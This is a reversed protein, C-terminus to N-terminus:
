KLRYLITRVRAGHEDAECMVLEEVPMLSFPPATLVVGSGKATRIDAGPAKDVNPIFDGSPIHETVVLYRYQARLKPLAASIEANSVHQLVQRIFVVDGAPLRDRALNVVEFEVTKDPHHLRHHAIHSSVIDCAVYRACKSRIQSGIAFDGCGLDVVDPKEPFGDLFAHAAAVYPETLAADHSGSGSYFHGGNRSEGWIGREYIQTFIEESSKGAVNRKFQETRWQILRDIAPQPLVTRLLARVSPV